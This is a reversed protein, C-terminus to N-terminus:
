VREKLRLFPKEVTYHLLLAAILSLVFLTPLYLAVQLPPALRFLGVTTELLDLTPEVLPLHVLYLAYSIRALFRLKPGGLSQSFRTPAWLVGLLLAGFGLALLSQLAVIEGLSITRLLETPLLLATLVLAAAWQLRAGLRHRTKEPLSKGDIFLFACAAGVVMGDFSVHFPSRFVEFFREYTPPIAEGLSHLFRFLPPTLILAGFALLFRSSKWRPKKGTGLFPVVLLPALLYFKEEVGLSWFAVVIDSGLYDQLYLLHYIVRWTLNEADISFGPIGVFVLFLLFAYYAPFIRLARKLLYQRLPHPTSRWRRSLHYTILFGSLVFFLDVGSWGNLLADAGDWFGIPLIAEPQQTFPRVGHRALVLLIAFARLGDLAPLASPKRAVAFYSALAELRRQSSVM